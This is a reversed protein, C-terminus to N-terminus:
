CLRVQLAVDSECLFEFQEGLGPMGGGMLCLEQQEQTLESLSCRADILRKATTRSGVPILRQLRGSELAQQKKHFLATKL